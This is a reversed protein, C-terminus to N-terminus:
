DTRGRADIKWRGIIKGDRHLVYSDFLNAVTCAHNPIIRIPDNLQLNTKKNIPIIGHEESLRDIILQPYEIIYGHGVISQNGHAGQDLALTKSGADIIIRNEKVSVVSALVTLACQDKQAVHLGVQVMDYFVANGPRIETIGEMKGAIRFTPTSGISRHTIYIGVDECLAVSTLVARAEEEAITNLQEETTAAYSHGAHTFIGTLSLTSLKKVYQALKIVEENSEVGCRNLGSNVKIWVDLTKDHDKFFDHLLSAQEISDVAVTITAHDLLNMIRKFQSPSSIPYAILIDKIGGHAMVEAEGVKAVTVGVAGLEIQKKAIEISKHTKIHPRYNVHYTKSFQIIDKINQEMQDVNLLLAPTDLQIIDNTMFCGGRRHTSM